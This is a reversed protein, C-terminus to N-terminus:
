GIPKKLPLGAARPYVPPTQFTKQIVVLYREDTVGPLEVPIIKKLEGGLIKLAPEAAQAESHATSGKQALVYGGTKVFPLLYEVLTPLNAVARALAWDYVERQGAKHALEEARTTLVDVGKLQLTDRVLECFRAKKGISEVLTLQMGPHIFKLPLGPFGAGTGVDIVKTAPTHHMALECSLSDLFHKVRIGELDRIATLNIKANWDLLLAEYQRFLDMQGDTLSIHFLKETEERLHDM